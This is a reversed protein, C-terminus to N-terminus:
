RALGPLSYPGNLTDLTGGVIATQIQEESPNLIGLAALQRLAADRLPETSAPATGGAAASNGPQRIPTGASVVQSAIVAPMGFGALIGPAQYRRGAVELPGGALVRAAQEASPNQAGLARLEVAARQLFAQADAPALRTAPRFSTVQVQGTALPTVLMVEAGNVLAALLNQWNPDVSQARAASVGLALAAILLFRLPV